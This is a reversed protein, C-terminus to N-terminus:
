STVEEAQAMAEAITAMERFTVNLCFLVLASYGNVPIFPRGTATNVTISLWEQFKELQALEGDSFRTVKLNVLESRKLPILVLDVDDDPSEGELVVEEAAGLELMGM